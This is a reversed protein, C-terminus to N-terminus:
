TRLSTPSKALSPRSASFVTSSSWSPASTISEDKLLPEIPGLGVMEDFVEAGLQDLEVTNLALRGDKAFDGVLKRVQRRMEGEDLEGLKGLDIEEILRAHLRLRMDLMENDVSSPPPAEAVAVIPTAVGEFVPEPEARRFSFRAM